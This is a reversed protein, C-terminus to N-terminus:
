QFENKKYEIKRIKDSLEMNIQEDIEDQLKKLEEIRRLIRAGKFFYITIKFVFLILIIGLIIPIYQFSLEHM